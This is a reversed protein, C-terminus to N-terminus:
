SGSKPATKGADDIRRLLSAKVPEFSPEQVLDLYLRAIGLKGAHIAYRALHTRAEARETETTTLKLASEWAALGEAPRAPRVVYFTLAYDAARAYSEPELRLGRRYTLLVREFLEPETLKYRSMADTRYLLLATAFDFFYVAERPSLGLSKEFCVFADVTRGNHALHHALQNWPAPSAPAAVRGEEWRRIAELDDAMDPGFANHLAAAAEHGPHRALFDMYGMAVSQIRHEMRQSLFHPTRGALHEDRAATDRLWRSLDERTEQDRQLLAKFEAEAAPQEPALAPPVANAFGLGAALVLAVMAVPVRFCWRLAATKKLCDSKM